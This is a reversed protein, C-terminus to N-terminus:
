ARRKLAEAYEPYHKAVCEPCLGHSFRAESHESVYAEVQQWYGGDDRIRKCGACMPILGRLTKIQALADEVQGIRDQLQAQLGLVREGVSMRAALEDRNFPKVLYDDAGAGLGEVLDDKRGKATLLILYMSRLRSDERIRRVLAVGDLEPMMWDLIAMRPADAASLANWAEGGDRCCVVDHGWKELVMRLVRHSTPDDEAILIRM